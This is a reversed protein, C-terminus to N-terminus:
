RNNAVLAKVKPTIRSYFDLPPDPQREIGILVHQPNGRADALFLPGGSDGGSSYYESKLGTTYGYDSGTSVNLVVSKVLNADRKQRDRGVAVGYVKKNGLEGVDRVEPYVALKIPTDLRLLAIDEKEVDSYWDSSHAVAGAVKANSKPSGPAYQATVTYTKGGTCHTATMVITPSILVGTCFDRAANNVTILVSEPLMTPPGAQQGINIASDGSGTSEDDTGAACGVASVASAFLALVLANRAVALSM